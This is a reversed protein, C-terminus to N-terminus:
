HFTCKQSNIDLSSFPDDEKIKETPEELSSLYYDKLETTPQAMSIIHMKALPYTTQYSEMWQSAVVSGINDNDLIFSFQIPNNIILFPQDDNNNITGIINDGNILKIIKIQDEM